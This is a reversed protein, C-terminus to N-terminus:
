TAAEQRQRKEHAASVRRYFGGVAKLFRTCEDSGIFDRGLTLNYRVARDIARLLPQAEPSAPAGNLEEILALRPPPLALTTTSTNSKM